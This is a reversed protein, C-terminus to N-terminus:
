SKVLDAKAKDFCERALEIYLLAQQWRDGEEVLEGEANKFLRAYNHTPDLLEPAFIIYDGPQATKLFGAFSRTWMEKFHDVYLRNTGDGIDVQISGSNGIRAQIFRTREFVPALFNFKMEVGGNTMEQGTYWHSFDGNFRIEPFKKVIQITRWMDQTITARHSEIYLPLDYKESTTLVDEVLRYTEDESELGWGVHLTMCERGEAKAQEAAPGIEGVTNVRRSSSIKLGLERCLDADADQVGDFGAAKVGELVQRPTGKPGTSFAPFNKLNSTCIDRRLYPERTTGDNTNKVLM